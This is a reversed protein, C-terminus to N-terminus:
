VVIRYRMLIHLAISLGTIVILAIAIHTSIIDYISLYPPELYVGLMTVYAIRASLQTILVAISAGIVVAIVNMVYIALIASIYLITKPVGQHYLIRLPDMIDIAMSLSLAFSAGIAILLFIYSWTHLFLALERLEKRFLEPISSNVFNVKAKGNLISSIKTLISHNTSLVICMNISFVCGELYDLQIVVSHKLVEILERPIDVSKSHNYLCIRLTSNNLRLYGVYEKDLTIGNCLKTDIGLRKLSSKEIGIISLTSNHIAGTYLVIISDNFTKEIYRCLTTNDLLLYSSKGGIYEFEISTISDTFANLLAKVSLFVAIALAIGTILKHFKDSRILVKLLISLARLVNVPNM